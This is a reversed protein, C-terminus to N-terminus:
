TANVVGKVVDDPTGATSRAIIPFSGTSAATASLAVKMRLGFTGGGPALTPTVFTGNRVATTVDALNAQNIYTVTYGAAAGTGKLTFSAPAVGDNQIIVPFYQSTGRAIPITKTQGAATANYIADGVYPGTPGAIWGDPLRLSRSTVFKAMTDGGASTFNGGAFLQGSFMGLALGDGYWPGNGAGNSGLPRWYSGDFYAVSDAAPYGNANQFSGTVFLLSGSTTMSYIYASTPLWGNTGASDSGLASWAHTVGNWKAVHDAKALGGINLADSSVYIDTGKATIARVFSTVGSGVAHWAGDYSAINDAAAIQDLNQFGGGAYLVGNSDATLTHISGTFDGDNSVTASPTGTNLDCKLLYDAAAIGAGDQFAGGVYMTSGIVQLAKVQLSVTPGVHGPADCFPKWNVGDFVALNDADVNGGGDQFNGGAYIKGGYHAIANVSGNGLGTGLASWVTGDWKAIRDANPKGGANTFNGGVYLVSGVAHLASVTGNLSATGAAGGDGLHNWGGPGTAAAPTAVAVYAALCAALSVSLALPTHRRM